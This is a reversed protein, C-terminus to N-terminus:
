VLFSLFTALYKWPKTQVAVNIKQYPCQENHHQNHHQYPHKYHHHNLYTTLTSIKTKITLTEKIIVM